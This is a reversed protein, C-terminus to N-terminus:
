PITLRPTVYPHFSAVLVGAWAVAGPAVTERSAPLLLVGGLHGLAEM